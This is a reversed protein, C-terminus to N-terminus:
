TDLSIRYGVLLLANALFLWVALMVLVGVGSTGYHESLNSSASLIATFGLSLLSITAASWVTGHLISRWGIHEPPFIRYILAVGAATGAFGLVLALVIGLVKAATGDGLLASGAYSGILSGMV